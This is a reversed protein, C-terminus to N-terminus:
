ALGDRVAARDEEDAGLLLRLLGDGLLGGADAHGVDVLAPETAHEGVELRHVLAELAELLELLDVEVVDRAAAKVFFSSSMRRRSFSLSALVSPPMRSMALTGEATHITSVFM